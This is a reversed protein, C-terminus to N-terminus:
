NLEEKKFYNEMNTSFEKQKHILNEPIKLSRKIIYKKNNDKGIQIKAITLAHDSLYYNESIIAETKLNKCWIHDPTSSGIHSHFTNLHRNNYEVQLIGRSMFEEEITRFKWAKCPDKVNANFDGMIIMKNNKQEDLFDVLIKIEERLNEIQIYVFIVLIGNAEVAVNNNGSSDVKEM